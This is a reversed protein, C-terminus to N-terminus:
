KRREEFYKCKQNNNLNLGTLYSINTIPFNEDSYQKDELKTLINLYKQEAKSFLEDISYNYILKKNAPNYWSKHKINLDTTTIDNVFNSCYQIKSHKFINDIMKYIKYKIGYPDRVIYKKLFRWRKLSSFYIKGINKKYFTKYFIDNLSNTLNKSPKKVNDYIKYLKAKSFPITNDKQFFYKDIQMELHRHLGQYHHTRSNNKKYVGTKYIIYPHFTSDLVYHTLTGYFFSFLINDQPQNNIEKLINLFFLKTNQRHASHGLNAVWKKLGYNYFLMDFSQSFLLYYNYNIKKKLNEDFKEYVKEAFYKHTYFAPM